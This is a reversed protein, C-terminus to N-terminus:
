RARVRRSDRVLETAVFLAAGAIGLFLPVLVYGLKVAMLTSARGQQFEDYSGYRALRGWAVLTVILVLLGGGAILYLAIKQRDARLLRAGGYWGGIVAATHAFLVPVIALGPVDNPDVLYLWSWATHVLYLYLTVPLVIVGTFILVLPFAPTAFAGDVRLRDRACM